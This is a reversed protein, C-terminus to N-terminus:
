NNQNCFIHAHIGKKQVMNLCGEEQASEVPKCEKESVHIKGSDYINVTIPDDNIRVKKKVSKPGQIGAANDCLKVTTLDIGEAALQLSSRNSTSQTQETSSSDTSNTVKVYYCVM